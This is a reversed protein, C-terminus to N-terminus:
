FNCRATELVSLVGELAEMIKLLDCNEKSRKLHKNMTKSLGDAWMCFYGAIYELTYKGHYHAYYAVM